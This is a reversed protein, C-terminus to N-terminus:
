RLMFKVPLTFFVKVPNGNQKGPKWKPMANVIRLAEEDCGGGIGRLVIANGVSGDENVVFQIYVTGEIGAESAAVPYRIISGIFALMDGQFQPMQEVWRVPVNPKAVEITKGKGNGSETVIGLGTSDGDAVSLGPRADALNKNQTMTKDDPVNDTADVIPDTFVRVKLKQPSPPPPTIHTVKPLAESFTCHIITPTVPTMSRHTVVDRHWNVFSCCVLTGVSLAILAGAKGLRQDYHKRLEYGGYNKNRNDFVIDLYDAHLLTKPEM